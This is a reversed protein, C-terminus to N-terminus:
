GPQTTCQTLAARARAVEEATQRVIPADPRVGRAALGASKKQLRDYARREVVCEDGVSDGIGCGPALFAVLLVAAPFKM